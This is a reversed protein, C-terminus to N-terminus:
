HKHHPSSKNCQMKGSCKSGKALPNHNLTTKTKTNSKTNSKMNSKMNTHLHAFHNNKVIHNMKKAILARANSEHKKVQISIHHGIYKANKLVHDISKTIKNTFYVENAFCTLLNCLLLLYLIKM